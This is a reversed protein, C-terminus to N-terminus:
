LSGKVRKLFDKFIDEIEEICNQLNHRDNLLKLNLAYRRCFKFVNEAPVIEDNWGHVVETYKAKPNMEPYEYGEIYVAPAMLFLGAPNISESAILSVFAGMSSGALIINKENENELFRLLKNIREHPDAISRYDISEVNFGAEKAIVSLRQIKFAGPGSEKGHSFFIKGCSKKPM